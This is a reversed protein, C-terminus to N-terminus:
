EEAVVLDAVNRYGGAYPLKPVIAAPYPYPLLGNYTLRANERSLGDIQTTDVISHFQSSPYAVLRNFKAEVFKVLKWNENEELSFLRRGRPDGDMVAKAIEKSDHSPFLLASEKLQDFVKLGLVKERYAISAMDGACFTQLNFPAHKWFATGRTGPAHDDFLYTVGALWFAGDVHQDIYKQAAAAQPDMGFVAFSTRPVLRGASIASPRGSPWIKQLFIEGIERFYKTDGKIRASSIWGPYYENAGPLHYEQQWAFQRVREPDSLADDIVLIQVGQGIDHWGVTAKPNLDLM